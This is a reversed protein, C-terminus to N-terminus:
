YSLGAKEARRRAKREELFREKKEAIKRQYNEWLTESVKQITYIIMLVAAAGFIIGFLIILLNWDSELKEKPQEVQGLIGVKVGLDAPGSLPAAVSYPYVLFLAVTVLLM